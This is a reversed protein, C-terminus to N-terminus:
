LADFGTTLLSPRRIAKWDARLLSAAPTPWPMKMRVSLQGAAARPSVGTLATPVADVPGGGDKMAPHVACCYQFTGAMPFTRAFTASNRMVDCPDPEDNIRLFPIRLRATRFRRQPPLSAGYSSAAIRQGHAVM